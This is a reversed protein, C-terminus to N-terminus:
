QQNKVPYFCQTDFGIYGWKIKDGLQIKDFLDKTLKSSPFRHAYMYLWGNYGDKGDFKLIYYHELDKYDRWNEYHNVGANKKAYKFMIEKDDMADALFKVADHITKGKPSQYQYLDIGNLYYIEAISMLLNLGHTYYMWSWKGRSAERWLSGDDALDNIAYEFLKKGQDFHKSDNFTAGYLTRILQTKYTGNQCDWIISKNKCQSLNYAVPKKNGVFLFYNKTRMEIRALFKEKEQESLHNNMNLAHYAYYLPLLHEAFKKHDDPDSHPKMAFQKEDFLFTLWIKYQELYTQPEVWYQSLNEKAYWEIKELDWDNESWTKIVKFNNNPELLWDIDDINMHNDSYCSSSKDLPKSTPLVKYEQAFSWFPICLLLAFIKIM